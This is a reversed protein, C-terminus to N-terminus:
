YTAAFPFMMGFRPWFSTFTKVFSPCWHMSCICTVSTLFGNILTDFIQSAPCSTFNVFSPPSILCMLVPWFVLNALTSSTYRKSTIIAFPPAASAETKVLCSIYSVAAGVMVDRYSWPFNVLKIVHFPLFPAEPFDLQLHVLLLVLRSRRLLHPIWSGGCLLLNLRVVNSMHGETSPARCAYSSLRLTSRMSLSFLLLLLADRLNDEVVTEHTTVAVLLGHRNLHRLVPPAPHNECVHHRPLPHRVNMTCGLKDLVDLLQAVILDNQLAVSFCCQLTDLILHLLPPLLGRDKLIRGCTITLRVSRCLSCHLCDTFM